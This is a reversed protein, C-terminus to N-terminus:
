PNHISCQLASYLISCQILYQVTYYVANYSISCQVDEPPFLSHYSLRLPSHIRELSTENRIMIMMMKIIMVMMGVMMMMVIMMMVFDTSDKM